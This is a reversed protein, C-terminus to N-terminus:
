NSNNLTIPVAGKVIGRILVEGQHFKDPSPTTEVIAFRKMLVVGGNGKRNAFSYAIWPQTTWSTYVSSNDGLNHRKADAHGGQPVAIGLKANEIDPHASHVGRFLTIYGDEDVTTSIGDDSAYDLPIPLPTDLKKDLYIITHGGTAIAAYILWKPIAADTPEPISLDIAIAAMAGKATNVMWDPCCEEQNNDERSFTTRSSGPASKWAREVLDFVSEQEDEKSDEETMGTPDVYRIPNNSVYNYPSQYENLQALPDVQWWTTGKLDYWRASFDAISLGFDDNVEKGNYLYRYLPTSDRGFNEIPLGYPYYAATSLIEVQDAGNNRFIVRTSGQYDRINYQYEFSDDAQRVARGDTHYIAELEENVHEFVGFYDQKLLENEGQSVTKRLKTGSADYLWEIVKGGGLDAKYPLDLHNYSITIGKDPDFNRNGNADYGYDQLDTVDDFGFSIKDDCPAISAVFSQGSTPKYEFGVELRIVEGAKYNVTNNANITSSANLEYDAHFTEDANVMDGINIVEVCCGKELGGGASSNDTIQEVRNSSLFYEYNLSDITQIVDDVKGLRKLNLINGREDYGYSASYDNTVFQQSNNETGYTAQRLRDLYDYRYGYINRREEGRTQWTINSINGSLEANSNVAGIADDYNIEMYFLDPPDTNLLENPDGTTGLPLPTNIRTIWRQANYRYDVVQLFENNGVGGLKRKTILDRVGYSLNSCHEEANGSILHFSNIQRGKHDYTMRETISIGTNYATNAQISRVLNDAFDYEMQMEDAGNVLLVHNMGRSNVLRGYDDYTLTHEIFGTTPRYGDLISTRTQRM